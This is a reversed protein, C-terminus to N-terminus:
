NEDSAEETPAKGGGAKRVRAVVDEISQGSIQGWVLLIGSLQGTYESLMAKATRLSGPKVRYRGTPRQQYLLGHGRAERMAAALVQRSVATDRHLDEIPPTVEEPILVKSAILGCLAMVIRQTMNAMDTNGEAMKIAKILDM